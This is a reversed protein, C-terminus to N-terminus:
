TTCSSSTSCGHGHCCPWRRRCCCLTGGRRGSCRTRARPTARPTCAAQTGAAGLAVAGALGRHMTIPHDNILTVLDTTHGHHPMGVCLQHHTAPRLRVSCCSATCVRTCHLHCVAKKIHMGASAQKGARIQVRTLLDGGGGVCVCWGVCVKALFSQMENESLQFAVQYALLVGEQAGAVNMMWEGDAHPQQRCTLLMLICPLPARTNVHRSPGHRSPSGTYQSFM